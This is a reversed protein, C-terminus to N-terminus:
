AAGGKPDDDAEDDHPIIVETERDDDVAIPWVWNDNKPLQPIAQDVLQQGWYREFEDVDAAGHARGLRIAADRVTRFYEKESEQEMLLWATQKRAERNSEIMSTLMQKVNDPDVANPLIGYLALNVIGAYIAMRGLSAVSEAQAPTLAVNDTILMFGSISAVLGLVFPVVFFVLYLARQFNSKAGNFFSALSSTYVLDFLIFCAIGSIFESAANGLYSRFLWPGIFDMGFTFSSSALLIWVAILVSYKLVGGLPGTMSGVVATAVSPLGSGSLGALTKGLGRPTPPVTENTTNEQENTM